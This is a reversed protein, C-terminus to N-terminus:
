CASVIFDCGIIDDLVDMSWSERRGFEDIKQRMLIKFVVMMIEMFFCVFSMRMMVDANVDSVSNLIGGGDVEYRRKGM